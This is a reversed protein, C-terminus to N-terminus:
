LISRGLLPSHYMPICWHSPGGTRSVFYMPLPVCDEGIIMAWGSSNMLVIRIIVAVLALAALISAARTGISRTSSSGRHRFRHAPPPFLLSIDSSVRAFILTAAIPLVFVRPNRCESSDRSLIDFTLTPTGIWVKSDRALILAELRRLFYEASVRWFIRTALRPLTCVSSDLALILTALM